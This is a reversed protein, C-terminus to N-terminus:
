CCGRREATSTVVAGTRENINHTRGTFPDQWQVVGDNTQTRGAQETQDAMQRGSTSYISAAQQSEKLHDNSFQPKRRPDSTSAPGDPTSSRDQHGNRIHLGDSIIDRYSDRVERPCRSSESLAEEASTFKLHKRYNATSPEELNKDRKVRKRIRFHNATLWGEILVTIAKTVKDLLSSNEALGSTALAKDKQFTIILNFAPWKDVSKTGLKTERQRVTDRRVQSLPGNAAEDYDQDLRQLIGFDSDKFLRNITEYIENGDGHRTIPQIGLSIFQLHKTPFPQVAIAGEISLTHSIASAPIWKCDRSTIQRSQILLSAVKSTDENTQSPKEGDASDMHSSSSLRMRQGTQDNTLYVKVQEDWPLLLAIIQLKLHNWRKEHEASKDHSSVRQKVRVPMNGFLNQVTVRTGQRQASLEQSQPCPTLRDVVRSHHLTLM